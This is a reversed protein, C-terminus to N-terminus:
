NNFFININFIKVKDKIKKNFNSEKALEVLYIERVLISLEMTKEYRSNLFIDSFINIAPNISLSVILVTIALVTVEPLTEPSRQAMLSLILVFVPLIM